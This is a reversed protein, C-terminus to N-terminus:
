AAGEAPTPTPAVPRPEESRGRFFRLLDDLIMYGAPVFVLTIATSFIVGWALAIAMPILFQAQVSTEFMLPTLGAFTTLSTLLIPRFRQVGATRVADILRGGEARRRNIFDVLVLSDNVVVGTLAVIGVMSIISLDHGMIVHGLVAGILGFPIASMVILPQVYSKFPIAMLAFIVLLALVFMRVLESMALRLEASQGEVSWSVGPHAQLIGPLPGARLAALVDGNTTVRDDIDCTVTM